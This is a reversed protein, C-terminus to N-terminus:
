YRDQDSMYEIREYMYVTSFIRGIPRLFEELMLAVAALPTPPVFVIDGAELLVNKSTDGHITMKDFNIEFIKARKGEVSSPRIVQIREQWSMPNLRAASIATLLTDRGTSIRPGAQYVQGLVYYIPSKSVSVRVDVPHEEPLAYLSTAKQKIAESLELPTLGSAQFEGLAEFSVKGDARIVQAQLHLEPVKSCQVLIEDPPQLIYKDASVNVQGPKLFAEIDEPRSSFCGTSGLLVISMFLSIIVQRYM